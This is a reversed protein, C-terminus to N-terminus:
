LEATEWEPWVRSCMEEGILETQDEPTRLYLRVLEENSLQRLRESEQISDLINKATEDSIETTM